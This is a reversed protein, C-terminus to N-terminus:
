VSPPLSAGKTGPQKGSPRAPSCAHPSTSVHLRANSNNESISCAGHSEGAVTAASRSTYQFPLTHGGSYMPRQVHSVRSLRPQMTGTFRHSGDRANTICYYCPDSHHDYLDMTYRARSEGASDSRCPMYGGVPLRRQDSARSSYEKPETAPTARTKSSTDLHKRHIRDQRRAGRTPPM